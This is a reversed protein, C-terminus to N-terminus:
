KNLIARTIPGVVGDGDLSNALQFKAVASKTKNGFMSDAMGCDYGATNLFKQLELVENGKSGVKMLQTFNFKDAGLVMGTAVIKSTDGTLSTNTTSLVRGDKLVVTAIVKNPVLNKGYESGRVNVFYGDTVYNFTGLVDFPITLESGVLSSQTATNSQLLTNDKYLKVVVSSAQDLTAGNLVIGVDYGKINGQNWVVFNKSTLTPEVASVKKAGLAFVNTISVLVLAIAFVKKFNIKKM